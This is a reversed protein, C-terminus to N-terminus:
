LGVSLKGLYSSQAGNVRTEVAVNCFPPLIQIHLGFTHSQDAKTTQYDSGSGGAIALSTGSEGGTRILATHRNIAYTGYATFFRLFGYSAAAELATTDFETSPLGMLRSHKFRFAFAPLAFAEFVTWQAYGGATTAQLNSIRGVSFGFDVPWPLGKHFFARPITINDNQSSPEKSAFQGPTRLQDDILASNEPKKESSFGIGAGIGISGHSGAGEAPSNSNASELFSVYDNIAPTLNEEASALIAVSSASVVFFTKWVSAYRTQISLM